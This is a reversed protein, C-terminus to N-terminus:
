AFHTNILALVDAVCQDLDDNVVTHTFQHQTAIEERARTLRAAIQADTETGRDRLRRALEGFSPPILFISVADPLTEKVQLAGQVDIELLAIRGDALAKDIPERPTAYWHQAYQAWELYEGKAAAQHFTEPSAFWYHVGDQEGDRPARTTVSVSVFPNSLKAVVQRYVTGKGVGSPGVIVM